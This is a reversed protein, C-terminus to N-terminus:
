DSMPRLCIFQFGIVYLSFSPLNVAVYRPIISNSHGVSKTGFTPNQIM